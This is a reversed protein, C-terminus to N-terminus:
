QHRIHIGQLSPLIEPSHGDGDLLIESFSNERMQSLPMSRQPQFLRDGANRGDRPIRPGKRRFDSGALQNFGNEIEKPQATTPAATRRAGAM